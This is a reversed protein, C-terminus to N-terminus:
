SSEIQMWGVSATALYPIRCLRTSAPGRGVIYDNVGHARSFSSEIAIASYGHAEVLRQFLRNRILHGRRLPTSKWLRSSWLTTLHPSSRKSPPISPKPRISPSLSRKTYFGLTPRPIYSDSSRQHFLTKGNKEIYLQM